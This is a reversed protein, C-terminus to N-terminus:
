NKRHVRNTEARQTVCLRRIRTELPLYISTNPLRVESEYKAIHARSSALESELGSVKSNLRSILTLDPHQVTEINTKERIQFFDWPNLFSAQEVETNHVPKGDITTLHPNSLILYHRESTTTVGVSINTLSNFGVLRSLTSKCRSGPNGHVILVRLERCAFKLKNLSDFSTISNYSM